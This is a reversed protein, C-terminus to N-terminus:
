PFIARELKLFPNITVKYDGCIRIEGSPKIIPVIPIGWMSYKVKSIIGDKELRNLETEVKSKLV